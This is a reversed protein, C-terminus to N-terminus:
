TLRAHRLVPGGQRAIRAIAQTLSEVTVAMAYANAHLLMDPRAVWGVHGAWFLLDGRRPATGPALTQGLLAQQQDSDGPCPIGCAHCAIQVLGSCDIGFASNGGWLYPVGLLREAVAVPDTEPQRLPSLHQAPVFMPTENGADSWLIPSWTDAETGGTTAHSRDERATEDCLVIHSGLSLPIVTGPTKLGPTTKAYSSAATIRYRPSIEDGPAACHAMDIWGSYRDLVTEVLGWGQATVAYVRLHQGFLMQRDRSGGPTACLDAVPKTIRRSVPAVVVAAFQACVQALAAADGAACLSRRDIM